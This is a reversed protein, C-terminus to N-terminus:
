IIIQNLINLKAETDYLCQTMRQAHKKFITSIADRWSQIIQAIM